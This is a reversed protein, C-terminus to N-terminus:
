RRGASPLTQGSRREAWAKLAARDIKANHRVDVPLEPKFLVGEVVSCAPHWLGVRLIDIALRERMVKSRPLIGPKPQVVLLPREAGRAGVGVVATREVHEALDFVQELGVPMLVGKSTEIRHAKRGLFWLNGSEDLRGVDGMRHWFSGAPDPIKAAATAERENEYRATVHAGQVCIEGAEGAGVRLAESWREIPEDGIRILAIRIGPAARGVCVGRGGEAERRLAGLLESGRADAVPLAETAGYPTHVEGDPGLVERCAQVLRPPVPAGAIMLRRLSELKVGKERCWPAV